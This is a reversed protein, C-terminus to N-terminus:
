NVAGVRYLSESGLPEPLIQNSVLGVFLTLRDRLDQYFGTSIDILLQIQTGNQISRATTDHEHRRGFTPNFDFLHGFFGRFLNQFGFDIRESPRLGILPPFHSEFQTQFIM